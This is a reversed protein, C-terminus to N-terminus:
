KIKNLALLNLMWRPLAKESKRKRLNVYLGLKKIVPIKHTEVLEILTGDPDEVYCFRGSAEGMEFSGASDVTFSYGGKSARDKLKDMHTVDFCLHIFGCDGWFRDGFIKRTAKDLREVLEIEVSGLLHGFAGTVSKNKRLLVRRFMKGKEQFAPGDQMMGTHDYVIEDIGLIEKYFKLTKEMDSVGIVVGTVGGCTTSTNNFWCNSSIVDFLNGLSDEVWFHEKSDPTLLLPSTKVTDNTLFTEHASSLDATKIKVAFIGLDGPEPAIACYSPKRSLFQWLELGGGGNLNMSLIAKRRHVENGTYRTMLTASATDEFLLINMGFLDRYLYKATEADSVGIGVQQIGTIFTEM